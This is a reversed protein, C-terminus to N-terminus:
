QRTSSCILGGINQFMCVNCAKEQSLLMSYMACNSKAELDAVVGAHLFAKALMAISILSIAMAISIDIFVEISVQLLM